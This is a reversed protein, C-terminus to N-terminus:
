PEFVPAAESDEPLPFDLVLAAAALLMALQQAVAPMQEASLPLGIAAAAREAYARAESPDLAPYSMQAM